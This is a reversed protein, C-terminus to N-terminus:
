TDGLIEMWVGTVLKRDDRKWSVNKCWKAVLVVNAHNIQVTNQHKLERKALVRM